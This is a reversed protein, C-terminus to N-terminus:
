LVPKESIVNPLAVLIAMVLLIHTFTGLRFGAIVEILWFVFLVVAITYFM